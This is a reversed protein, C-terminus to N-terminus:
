SPAVWTSSLRSCPKLFDLATREGWRWSYSAATTLVKVHGVVLVAPTISDLGPVVLHLVKLVSHSGDLFSFHDSVVRLYEELVKISQRHFSWRRRSSRTMKHKMRLNDPVAGVFNTTSHGGTGISFIFVEIDALVAWRLNCVEGQFLRRSWTIDHRPKKCIESRSDCM